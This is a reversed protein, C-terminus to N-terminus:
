DDIIEGDIVNDLDISTSEQINVLNEAAKKLANIYKTLEADYGKSDKKVRAKSMPTMILEKLIKDKRNKIREKAEIAKSIEEAEIPVGNDSVGKVEMVLMRSHEGSNIYNSLRMDLIELEAYELIYQYIVYDVNESGNAEVLQKVKEVFLEYEFPCKKGKLEKFKESDKFPCIHYHPCIESAPCLLISHMTAGHKFQKYIMGLKKEDEVVDLFVPLDEKMGELERINDVVNFKNSKKALEKKIKEIKNM